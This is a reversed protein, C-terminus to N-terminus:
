RFCRWVLLVAADIVFGPETAVNLVYTLVPRYAVIEAWTVEDASLPPQDVLDFEPIRFLTAM